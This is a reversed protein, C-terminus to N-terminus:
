SKEDFGKGKAAGKTNQFDETFVIPTGNFMQQTISRYLDLQFGSDQVQIVESNIHYIDDLELTAVPAKFKSASVSQPKNKSFTDMVLYTKEDHSHM